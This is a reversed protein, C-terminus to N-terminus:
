SQSGVRNSCKLRIGLLRSGLVPLRRVALGRAFARSVVRRAWVGALAKSLHPPHPTVSGEAGPGAM